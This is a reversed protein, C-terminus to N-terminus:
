GDDGLAPLRVTFSAGRGVGESAASIEGGHLEVIHRTIALGLGLGGYRGREGADEQRFRDFVYPLFEPRIGKGTDRVCLEAGDPMRALRVEVHGGEPTFKVANTLLNSVVQQLRAQDGSVMAPELAVRLDVCRKAAAPRISDSAARVISALDVRQPAITLSGTAMSSVDVLDEILRAENRANREITALGREVTPADAAGSRLISAWGLIANLPARLEHSAMAIFEDKARNAAEAEARAERKLALLRVREEDARKRDTIDTAIACVAFPEGDEDFLPFKVELYLRREGGTTVWEEVRLPERTEIVRRDNERFIDSERDPFVDYDTKGRVWERTVGCLEEYLRNVLMYRGEADKVYIVAATNDIIAHLLNATQRILREARERDTVDRLWVLLGTESPYACCELWTRYTPAYASVVVSVREAVARALEPGVDTAALDPLADWLEMGVLRERAIGTLRATHANAFVIRLDADLALVSDSVGDLLGSFDTSRLERSVTGAGTSPQQNSVEWEEVFASPFFTSPVGSFPPHRFFPVVVTRPQM